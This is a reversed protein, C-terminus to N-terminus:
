YQYSVDPEWSLCVLRTGRGRKRPLHGMYVVAQLSLPLRASPVGWGGNAHGSPVKLITCDRHSHLGVVEDCCSQTEWIDVGAKEDSDTKTNYATRIRIAGFHGDVPDM